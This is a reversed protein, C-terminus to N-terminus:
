APGAPAPVTQVPVTEFRAVRDLRVRHTRGHADELELFEGEGKVTRLTRATGVLEADGELHLRLADGRTCALEYDDYRDCAIPTYTM